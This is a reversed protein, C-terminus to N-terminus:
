PQNENFIRAMRIEFPTVDTGLIEESWVDEEPYADLTEGTALM